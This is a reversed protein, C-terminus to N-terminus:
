LCERKSSALDELNIATSISEAICWSFTWEGCEQSVESRLDRQLTVTRSNQGPSRHAVAEWRGLPLSPAVGPRWPSRSEGASGPWAPRGTQSCPRRRPQGQVIAKGQGGRESANHGRGGAQGSSRTRCVLPSPAPWCPWRSGKRLFVEAHPRQVM